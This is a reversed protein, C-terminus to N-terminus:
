LRSFTVSTPWQIVQHWTSETFNPCCHLVSHRFTPFKICNFHKPERSLSAVKWFAHICSCYWTISLDVFKIIAQATHTKIFAEICKRHWMANSLSMPEDSGSVSRRLSVFWPKPLHFPM